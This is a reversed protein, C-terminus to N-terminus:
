SQNRCISCKCVTPCYKWNSDSPMYSNGNQGWRMGRRVNDLHNKDLADFAAFIGKAAADATDPNDSTLGATLLTDTHLSEIFDNTTGNKVNQKKIKEKKNKWDIMENKMKEIKEKEDQSLNKKWRAFGEQFSEGSKIHKTVVGICILDRHQHAPIKGEEVIESVQVHQGSSTEYIPGYSLDNAKKSFFGIKVM